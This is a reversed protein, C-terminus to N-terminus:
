GTMHYNECMIKQSMQVSDREGGSRDDDSCFFNDLFILGYWHATKLISINKRKGYSSIYEWKLSSM